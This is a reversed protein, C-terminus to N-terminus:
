PEDEEIRARVRDDHFRVSVDRAARAAAAIDEASADPVDALTEGTVPSVIQRIETGTSEVWDGDIFNQLTRVTIAM